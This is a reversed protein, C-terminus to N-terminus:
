RRDYPHENLESLSGLSRIEAIGAVIRRREGNLEEMNCERQAPRSINANGVRVM